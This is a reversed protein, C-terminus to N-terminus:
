PKRFIKKAAVRIRDLFDKETLLFHRGNLNKGTM